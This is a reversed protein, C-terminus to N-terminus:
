GAVSISWREANSLLAQVGAPTSRYRDGLYLLQGAGAFGAQGRPMRLQLPPLPLALERDPSRLGQM